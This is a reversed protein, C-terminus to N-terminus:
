KWFDKYKIEDDESSDDEDEEEKSEEEKLDESEKDESETDSAEEEKEEEESDSEEESKMDKDPLHGYGQIMREFDLKHAREDSIIGSVIDALDPDEDEISNYFKQYAKIANKEASIFFERLYESDFSEIEETEPLASSILAELTSGAEGGREMLAEVLQTYHGWEETVHEEFHSRLYSQNDGVMSDAAFKYQIAATAEGNILKKLDELYNVSEREEKYAERMKIFTNNNKWSM